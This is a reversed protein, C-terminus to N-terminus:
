FIDLIHLCTSKVNVIFPFYTHSTTSFPTHKLMFCVKIFLHFRATAPRRGATWSDVTDKDINRQPKLFRLCTTWGVTFLLAGMECM